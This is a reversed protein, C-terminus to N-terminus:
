LVAIAPRYIGPLKRLRMVSMLMLAGTNGCSVCVSAEGNRVSEIASWMSSDRGQRLAQSPKDEMAIVDKADRIECIDTLDKRKAVLPRLQDADGHLIFGIKSNKRASQSLGAVVVSPGLDGGMADVSILMNPKSPM